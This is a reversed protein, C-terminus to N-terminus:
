HALDVLLEQFRREETDTLHGPMQAVFAMQHVLLPDSAQHAEHAQHWDVLLGVGAFCRFAM